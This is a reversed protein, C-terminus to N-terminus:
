DVIWHDFVTGNGDRDCWAPREVIRGTIGVEPAEEVCIKHWTEGPASPEIHLQGTPEIHLHATYAHTGYGLCGADAVLPVEWYVERDIPASPSQFSSLSLHNHINGYFTSMNTANNIIFQLVHM